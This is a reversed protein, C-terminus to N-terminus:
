VNRSPNRGSTKAMQLFRAHVELLELDESFFMTQERKGLLEEVVRGTDGSSNIASIVVQRKKGIVYALAEYLLGPGFGLKESSWDPFIRGRMFRVFVPLEEVSLSPFIEALVEIMALRSSITEIRDCLEAFERFLM